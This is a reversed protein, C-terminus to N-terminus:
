SVGFEELLWKLMMDKDGSDKISDPIIVDNQKCLEVLALFDMAKIADEAIVEEEPSTETIM